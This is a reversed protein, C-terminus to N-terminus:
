GGKRGRIRKMAPPLLARVERPAEKRLARLRRTLAKTVAPQKRSAILMMILGRAEHEPPLEKLLAQLRKSLAERTPQDVHRQLAGFLSVAALPEGKGTELIEELIEQTEKQLVMSGFSMDCLMLTVFDSMTRPMPLDAKKTFALLSDAVTQWHSIAERIGDAKTRTPSYWAAQLLRGLILKEYAGTREGANFTMIADLLPRPMERALGVFYFAVDSWIEDFYIGAVLQVVDELEVRNNFIHMALFYELLSRHRFSVEEGLELIGAREIEKGFDDLVTRDWGYEAAYDEVFADFEPRSVSLSHREYFLTHALRALFRKKIIYEFVVAIGKERDWRGLAIDTFRDYLEALSAPVEQREEVIEVLLMLSLPNMPIQHALRQIGERLAPLASQKELVQSVLTLAQSIEFPTLEYKEYGDPITTVAGVKRSAVMLGCQLEDAMVRAKKLVLERESGAIEDLGDVMMHSIAIQSEVSAPVCNVVLENGDAASIVDTAHLMLPVSVSADAPSAVLKQMQESLLDIALKGIATSKGSGPDGVLLIRHRKDLIRRLSSVRLRRERVAIVLEDETADLPLRRRSVMPEVYYESLHRGNKGLFHNTELRQLQEQLYEVASGRFFVQPYYDTFQTILWDLDHLEVAAARERTLRRKANNSAAGVLIVKVKNVPLSAFSTSIDAEHALAQTIQSEIERVRRKTGGKLIENATDRIADADGLTNGKIHGRKVVVAIVDRSVRDQRVLVLDKGLEDVGHTIAVRYDPEMATFLKQLHKHLETERVGELFAGREARSIGRAQTRLDISPM